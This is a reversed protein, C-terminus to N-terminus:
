PALPDPQWDKKYWEGKGTLAVPSGSCVNSHIMVYTGRANHPTEYLLQSDDPSAHVDDGDVCLEVSQSTDAAAAAADFLKM